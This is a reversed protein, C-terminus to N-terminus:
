PEDTELEMLDRVEVVGPTGRAIEMARKRSEEDDITGELTLRGSDVRVRIADEALGDAELLASQVSRFLAVDTAQREVRAQATLAQREAHRLRKRADRLEAEAQDVEGRVEALTDRAESAADRAVALQEGAQELREEPPSAGCAILLALAALLIPNSSQMDNREELQM